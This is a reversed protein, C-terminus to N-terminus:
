PTGASGSRSSRVVHGLALLKSSVRLRAATAADIDIDFRVRQNVLLLAIVGGHSAFAAGEGISLVGAGSATGLLHRVRRPDSETVFAAHVGALPQDWTLRRIAILRSM